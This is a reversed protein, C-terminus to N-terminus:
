EDDSDDADTPNTIRARAMLAGFTVHAFHLLIPSQHVELAAATYRRAIQLMGASEAVQACLLSPCQGRGCIEFM